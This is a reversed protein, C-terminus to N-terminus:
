ARVGPAALVGAHQVQGLQEFSVSPREVLQLPTFCCALKTVAGATEREEEQWDVGVVQFSNLILYLKQIDSDPFGARLLRVREERTDLMM